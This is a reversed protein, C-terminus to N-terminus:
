YWGLLPVISIGERHYPKMSVNCDDAMACVRIFKDLSTQYGDDRIVWLDHNGPVYLVKRFRVALSRFCWELLHLSDSVDGALILLDSSYESLSLSSVWRANDPYDLHLDSVAFVRM